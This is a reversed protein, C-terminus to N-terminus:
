AALLTVGSPRFTPAAAPAAARSGGAQLRRGSALLLEALRLGLAGCISELMESSPDKRGREVESLYQPSVGAREAVQHLTRHQEVRETRLVQGALQRWLPDSAPREDPRVTLPQVTAPRDRLRFSSRAGDELDM